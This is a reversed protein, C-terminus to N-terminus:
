VLMSVIRTISQKIARLRRNTSLRAYLGIWFRRAPSCIPKNVATWVRKKGGGMADHWRNFFTETDSEFYSDLNHNKTRDNINKMVVWADPCIEVKGGRTWIRLSLDPDAWFSKFIPDFLGGVKGVTKKSLCGWFAYLRDYVSWPEREKGHEDRFRFAGMFPDDHSRAFRLMHSLCRPAPSVDDAWFAVFPASSHRYARNTPSVTGSSKEEHLQTVKKIDNNLGFPSVVIIEYDTDSNTLSFEKIREMVAQPRM